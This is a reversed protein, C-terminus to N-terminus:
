NCLRIRQTYSCARGSQMVVERGGGAIWHLPGLLNLHLFPSHISDLLTHSWCNSQRSQLSSGSFSHLLNYGLAFAIMSTPDLTWKRLSFHVTAQDLPFLIKRLTSKLTRFITSQMCCDGTVQHKIQLWSTLHDILLKWLSCRLLM